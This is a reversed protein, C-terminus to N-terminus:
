SRPLEDGLSRSNSVVVSHQVVDKLARDEQREAQRHYQTKRRHNRGGFGWNNTPRAVVKIVGDALVYADFHGRLRGFDLDFAVNLKHDVDAARVVGILDLPGIQSLDAFESAPKVNVINVVTRIASALASM